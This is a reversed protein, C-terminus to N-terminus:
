HIYNETQSDISLQIFTLQGRKRVYRAFSIFGTRYGLHLFDETEWASARNFRQGAAPVRVRSGTCPIDPSKSKDGTSAGNRCLTDPVGAYMDTFAFSHVRVM